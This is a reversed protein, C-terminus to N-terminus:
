TVARRAEIALWADGGEREEASRTVRLGVASLSAEVSARDTDLLGSLVLAGCTSVRAELGPLLPAVERRILNAVVLDFPAADVAELPGTFFHSRGGLGNTRANARAEPAALPDLDLGVASGAGLAVAGLALVGSGTGVDLVRAGDIRGGLEALAADLLRLALRTSAHHGTGFAQGPDVVLVARDPAAVAEVFSPRVVLRPSAVVAELGQRWALSWDQEPVPRPAAVRARGGVEAACAAAIADARAPPAYVRLCLGGEATVEEIGLAGAEWSCASVLEGAEADDVRVDIRVSGM